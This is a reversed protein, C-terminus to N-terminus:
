ENILRNSIIRAVFLGGIIIKTCMLSLLLIPNRIIEKWKGNETFVGIYRYYVGFHKKVDVDDKGWKKIYKDFSPSYYWKKKLFKLFTISEENHEMYTDIVNSYCIQRIRKDLDWDEPGNLSEDFGGINKFIKVPIFRVCEIVTGTYFRREFKRIKNFYSKGGIIVEPIHLAIDVFDEKPKDRFEVVKEVCKEIVDERLLQDADLQLFYEGNSKEVGFNRQASREPGKNYVKNTYRRAVEKTRDTSNNDVVVIEIKNPLYTQKLISKLCNEINEEENRTAIVVSILPLNQLRDKM